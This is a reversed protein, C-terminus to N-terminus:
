EEWYPHFRRDEDIRLGLKRQWEELLEEPDGEIPDGGPEDFDITEVFISDGTEFFAMRVCSACDAPVQMSARVPNGPLFRAAVPEADSPTFSYRYLWNGSNVYLTSEDASWAVDTVRAGLRLVDVVTAEEVNWVRASNDVSGTAAFRGSGSLAVADVDGQHRLTSLSDGSWADWLRATRDASGTLVRSGDNSVTVSHVARTHGFLTARLTGEAVDWVRARADTGATVVTQGDPSSALARIGSGHQLTTLLEGSEGWVRAVGADDGTLIGHGDASWASARVTTPHGLHMLTDSTDSRYVAAAGGYGAVLVDESRSKLSVALVGADHRLGVTSAKKDLQWIRATGDWSGTMLRKGDASCAVTVVHANHRLTALLTGSEADWQRATKDWSGSVVSEGDACWAVDVVNAEHPLTAVLEGTTADWIRAANDTSATAIRDSSEDWVLENVSGGHQLTALRAGSDADWIRATQDWGGTLVRKGQRSWAVADVGSDHQLTALLRGTKVDWLKATADSSGTLARTGDPSWAVAYVPGDHPLSAVLDGSDVSWVRALSDISATLVRTEDNNWKTAVVLKPHPLATVLMGTEGSWIHAHGIGRALDGGATAVKTGTHGWDAVHVAYGPRIRVQPRGSVANWIQSTTDLSGTLVRTGDPNWAVSTIQGGHRVTTLLGPYDRGSLRAANHRRPGNGGSPLGRLRALLARDRRGRREWYLALLEDAIDAHWWLDRLSDYAQYAVNEDEFAANLTRIHPGAANTAGSLLYGFGIALLAVVASVGLTRLPIEVPLEERAWDVTFVREYIANRVRLAGGEDVKVVGSLKLAAQVASAPEDRVDKGARVRRYMRLAEQMEPSGQTLRDRVFKLNAENRLAGDAFFEGGVLRDVSERPYGAGAHEAAKLCLTQTLYPHGGTWHLVRALIERAREPEGGIGEALPAAEEESFDTLEVPCGINFPTQSPDSILQAPTAVGLMVFSLRGYEPHRSRANYFARIGAFFEDSFPLGITIDIEDVFVVVRQEDPVNVLVVDSFFEALRQAGALESRENWWSGLDFPIKLERLIRHAIGYYWQSALQTEAQTGGGTLDIQAVAFGAESLRRATRAMLSSKGMQRPSLVYCFEGAECQRLLERDAEREIYSPADPRMTGFPSYFAEDGIGSM